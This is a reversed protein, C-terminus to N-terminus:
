SLMKCEAKEFTSEGYMDDELTVDAYEGIIGEKEKSGCIAAFSNIRPANKFFVTNGIKIQQNAM